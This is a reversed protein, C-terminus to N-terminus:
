EFEDNAVKSRIGLVNTLKGSLVHADHTPDNKFSVGGDDLSRVSTTSVRLGISVDEILKM